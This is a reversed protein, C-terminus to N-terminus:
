KEISSVIAGTKGTERVTLLWDGSSLPTTRCGPHLQEIERRKANQQELEARRRIDSRRELIFACLAMAMLFLAGWSVAILIAFTTEARNTSVYEAYSFVGLIAVLLLILPLELLPM